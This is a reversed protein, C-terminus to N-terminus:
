QMPSPDNLKNVVPYCRFLVLEREDNDLVVDPVQRFRRVVEIRLDSPGRERLLREFWRRHALFPGNCDLDFKDAAVIRAEQHLYFFIPDFYEDYPSKVVAVRESADKLTHLASAVQSFQKLGNKVVLGGYYASAFLVQFAIWAVIVQSRVSLTRGPAGIWFCVVGLGAFVWVHISLYSDLSQAVLLPLHADVMWPYQALSSLAAFVIALGGFIRCLHAPLDRVFRQVRQSSGDYWGWLFWMSSLAIGPELPVLYSHRKGSAISFFILGVVFWIIGLHGVRHTRDSRQLKSTTASRWVAWLFVLSWPFSRSLFSPLYFWWPKQNIHEGGLFRNLNEFLLQRGIFAESGHVTAYAYWPVAVAILILWEWRPRLAFALARRIGFLYILCFVVILAPLLVGLPGRALVGLGCAFFFLSLDWRNEPIAGGVAAVSDPNFRRLIAYGALTVCLAFVMDTRAEGALAVFGYSLTLIAGAGGGIVLARKQSGLTGGKATEYGLLATLVIVGLTALISPVRLIAESIGGYASALVAAVWHYLIPKSPVLGNRLPLMWEGTRLIVSVVQGERAETSGGIVPLSAYVGTISGFILLLILARLLFGLPIQPNRADFDSSM